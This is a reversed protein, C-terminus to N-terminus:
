YGPNQQEAANPSTVGTVTKQAFAAASIFLMSFLVLCLKSVRSKM